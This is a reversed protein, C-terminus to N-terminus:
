EGEGKKRIFGEPNQRFRDAIAIFGPVINMATLGVLFAIGNELESPFTIYHLVAPTIYGAILAGTAVALLMQSKTLPKLYSLSVVGGAFGAVVSAVKVGLYSGAVATTPDEM